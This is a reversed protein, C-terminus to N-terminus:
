KLLVQKLYKWEEEVDCASTITQAIESRVHQRFKKRLRHIAVKTANSTLGLAEATEAQAAEGQEGTLWPKLIEFPKGGGKGEEDAQLATLARDLLIFAWERDFTEDTLDSSPDPLEMSECEGDSDGVELSVFTVDGGRKQRSLSKRQDLLFHNVAGLLYSRFRGKEQDAQCVSQRKLFDAFFEQTWDKALAVDRVRSRIYSEVPRYYAECLEELAQQSEVSNGGAM